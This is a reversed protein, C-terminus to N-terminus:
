TDLNMGGQNFRDGIKQDLLTRRSYHLFIQFAAAYFSFRKDSVERIISGKVGFFLFHPNVEL